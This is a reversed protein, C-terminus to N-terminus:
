ASSPIVSSTHATGILIRGGFNTLSIVSVQATQWRLAQAEDYQSKNHAYLSRAMFGVNNIDPRFSTSYHANYSSRFVYM